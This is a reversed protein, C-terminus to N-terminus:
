SCTGETHIDKGHTHGRQTYTQEKMYIDRQTYTGGRTRGKTHINKGGRRTYTKGDGEYAHGRRTYTGGHTHGMPHVGQRTNHEEAAERRTVADMFIDCLCAQLNPKAVLRFNRRTKTLGLILEM